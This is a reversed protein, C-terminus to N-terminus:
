GLWLVSWRGLYFCIFGSVLAGTAFLFVDCLVRQLFSLDPYGCWACSEDGALAPSMYPDDGDVTSATRARITASITRKM